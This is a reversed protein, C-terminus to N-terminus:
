EVVEVLVGDWDLICDDEYIEIALTYEDLPARLPVYLNVPGSVSEGPELTYLWEWLTDEYDIVGNTATLVVADFSRAQCQCENTVEVTFELTEGPSIQSPCDLIAVALGHAAASLPLVIMVLLPLLALPKRM